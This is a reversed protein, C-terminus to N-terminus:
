ILDFEERFIFIKKYDENQIWYVIGDITDNKIDLITYTLNNPFEYEDLVELEHKEAIDMLESLSKLRILSGVKPEKNIFKM